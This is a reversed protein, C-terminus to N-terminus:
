AGTHRAGPPHAKPNTQSLRPRSRDTLCSAIKMRHVDPKPRRIAADAKRKQLQLLLLPPPPVVCESAPDELPPPPLELPTVPQLLTGCATFLQEM